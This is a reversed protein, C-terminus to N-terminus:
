ALEVLYTKMDEIQAETLQPSRDAHRDFLGDWQEKETVLDRVLCHLLVTDDRLNELDVRM